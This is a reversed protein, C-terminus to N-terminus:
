SQKKSCIILTKEPLTARQTFNLSNLPMVIAMLLDMNITLDMGLVLDPSKSTTRLIKNIQPHYFVLLTSGLPIQLFKYKLIKTLFVQGLVEEWLNKFHKCSKTTLHAKKVTLCPYLRLNLYYSPQTKTSHPIANLKFRNVSKEKRTMLKM